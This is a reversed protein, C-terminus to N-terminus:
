VSFVQGGLNTFGFGVLTGNTSREREKEINKKSLQYKSFIQSLIAGEFLTFSSNIIKAIVLALHSAFFLPMM